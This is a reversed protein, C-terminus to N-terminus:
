PGTEFVYFYRGPAAANTHVYQLVGGTGVVTAPLTDWSVFDLTGRVAHSIGAQSVYDIATTQTAKDHQVALIKLGGGPVTSVRVHLTKGAADYVLEYTLGAPVNGLAPIGTATGTWRAVEYLGPTTGFSQVDITSGSFNVNGNIVLRQSDFGQLNGDGLGFELRGTVTLNGATTFVKGKDLALTGAVSTMGALQPFSAAAGSLRVRTGAAITLIPSNPIDLTTATGESVVEWRGGTLTDTTANYNTLPSTILLTGGRIARFLGNNTKAHQYLMLGGTDATLTGQNVLGAHIAASQYAAITGATTTIEQGAAVTLVDLPSSNRALIQRNGADQLVLKGTGGLTVAGNVWLVAAAAGPLGMLIRGDNTIAGSLYTNGGELAATLGSALSLPGTLSGTSNVLVRGTGTLAGGTLTSELWLTSDPAVFINGETNDVPAQLRLTGGNIAQLTGRNTKDHQYLVLGGTDATITGLNALGAHIAASQYAAITGATTTIEQGVAVTLVDLPSSNRPLIQRRGADQIVLKGTGGLTVAGNVWLSAPASGPLGMLIQGDNTVAGSLYTDGAELATTLGSALSLPGSLSGTSNVLVRGTGTLAGGTLTSGLWLTSGPGVFINGQTNEVPAQLRLTGGNIARFLGNNTKGQQYLVLGGSDATITGQNVLGAHIAANQYEAITGATSTIEQATGVTLVDFPSSNRPLIQRNGVDQLVLKGTGGLTVAGNVWLTSAAAGPLGMVIRGDNTFTGSLYTNGGELATTLGSALSLPGTLTGSSNVLLRGTGDVSGGSLTTSLHLTSGEGATLIGDANDVPVEMLLTGGNIARFVGHNTKPNAFLSLGGTDATITGHNVIGAHISTSQYEAITGATSTIEQGAAVTLVDAVTGSARQIVNRGNGSFVISGTGSLTTAGNIALSGSTMTLQGDNKISNGFVRLLGVGGGGIALTDGEGIFVNKAARNATLHLLTDQFDFLDVYVDRTDSPIQPHWGTATNWNGAAAGTWISGPPLLFFRASSSVTLGNADTATFTVATFGECDPLIGDYDNTWTVSDPSGSVQAGGHSALFAAMDAAATDCFGYADKAPVAMAPPAAAVGTISISYPSPNTNSVVRLIGNRNGLTQPAFIVDFSTSAGAALTTAPPPTGIRFDNGGQPIDVVIGTLPTDLLNTLTFNVTADQGLELAPGFSRSSSNPVITNGTKLVIGQPESGTLTFARNASRTFETNTNYFIQYSTGGNSSPWWTFFPEGQAQLSAPSFWYTTDALARFPAPLQATFRRLTVTENRFTSEGIVTSTVSASPIDVSHVSASPTAGGGAFFGIRWSATQNGVQINDEEDWHFGVWTVETIDVTEGLQFADFVRWSEGTTGLTTTWTGALETSGTASVPNAFVEEEAARAGPAFALLLTLFFLTCCGLSFSASGHGPSSHNM